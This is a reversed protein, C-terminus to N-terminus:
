DRRYVPAFPKLFEDIAEYLKIRKEANYAGHGEDTDYEVIFDTGKKKGASELADVLARTQKIDVQRDVLGHYIFLPCRINKVFNIASWRYLKEKDEAISPDGVTRKWHDGAIDRDWDYYTKIQEPVDVVGFFNIGFEFMEPHHVVSLMTATGGFSAGVVGVHNRDAYGQDIAWNVGDWIDQMSRDWNKYSAKEFEKGYGTSARFNVKLVAFGRNVFYIPELDYWWRVGWTDRGWPGGHPNVIMPVPTGEKYDKPLYLYGHILCGDNAKFEIPMQEPMYVNALNPFINGLPEMSGAKLDLLFFQAGIRDSISHIVLKTGSDDYDSIYNSGEPIAEDIMKYLREYKKDFFVNVPKDRDFRIGAIGHTKMNDLRIMDTIDYVPDDLLLSESGADSLSVSYLRKMGDRDRKSLIVKTRDTNMGVFEPVDFITEMKMFEEWTDTAPDRRYISATSPDETNEWWLGGIVEGDSDTYYGVINGPNNRLKKLNGNDVNMLFLDPYDERRDNNEVLVYKPDNRLIDIVNIDRKFKEGFGRIRDMYPKVIVKHDSGDVNVGFITGGHQRAETTAEGQNVSYFIRENNVWYYSTVDLKQGSLIRPQRTEMNLIFVNMYGDYPALCAINKGDPSIKFSQVTPNQFFTSVPLVEASSILAFIFAFLPIIKVFKM